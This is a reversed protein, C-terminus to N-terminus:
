ERVIEPEPLVLYGKDILKQMLRTISSPNLKLEEALRMNVIKRGQDKFREIAMLLRQENIALLPKESAAKGRKQAAQKM